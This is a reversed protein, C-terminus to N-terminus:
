GPPGEWGLAEAVAQEPTLARGGESAIGFVEPGLTERARVDTDADDFRDFRPVVAGSREILGAVAGLLRAARLAEGRAYALIAIAEISAAVSVLAGMANYRALAQQLLALAKDAEGQRWAAHGLWFLAQATGRQDGTELAMALSEEHLAVARAFDGQRQVAQGLGALVDPLDRRDGLERLMDLSEQFLDSARQPDHELALWGLNDLKLATSWWEGLGRGVELSDSFLTEARDPDGQLVAASALLSLAMQTGWEDGLTRSLALSETSLAQSRSCEAPNLLAAALCVLSFAEGRADGRERAIALAEEHAGIARETDGQSLATVGLGNLAKARATTRRTAGPLALLEEYQERAEAYYGRIWRFFWIAGALRLAAEINQRTPLWHLAARLNDHEAELRNLWVVQEAGQMGLEAAEALALYHAAHADRIADAEGSGVLLALGYERITELMRLRPRADSDEVRQLLNHDLLSAMGTFVEVDLDRQCVAEAAELTCGGAFVALRRFLVQEEPALLDYSWAIADRMTQQRPPLDRAGASLLPLRQEFRALLAAPPLMKIRAAALELALPLGDLRRCIAAVPQAQEMTLAFGPQVAQAREVFLRVAAVGALGALPPQSENAAPVALPEVLFEREGRLRLRARSTALVVLGPSAALLEAILPMAPLLHECNDLVVLLDRAALAMMLSQTLSRDGSEPVGLAHAVAGPVLELNRLAALEIWAVGDGFDAAMEAAVAMALRTKGVGGPGTLTLLRVEPRRLLACAAAVEAERGVLPTPALPPPSRTPRPAALAQPAFEPHAAALLGTRADDGLDLADALLRVTEARPTTRDRELLQLGRTSVGAREALAEQTLGAQLRHRRLLAGFTVSPAIAM